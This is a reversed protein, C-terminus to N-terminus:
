VSIQDTRTHMCTSIIVTLLYGKSGVKSHRDCNGIGVGSAGTVSFVFNGIVELIHLCIDFGSERSWHLFDAEQLGTPEDFSGQGPELHIQNSWSLNPVWDPQKMVGLWTPITMSNIGVFLSNLFAFYFMIIFDSSYNQYHTNPPGSAHSWATYGKTAV